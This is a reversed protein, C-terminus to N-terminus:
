GCNLAHITTRILGQATACVKFMGAFHIEEILWPALTYPRGGSAKPWPMTQVHRCFSLVSDALIFTGLRGVSGCLGTEFHKGVFPILFYSWKEQIFILDMRYLAYLERIPLIVNLNSALSM